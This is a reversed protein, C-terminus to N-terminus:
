ARLAALREVAVAVRADTATLALRVHRAGAPGYFSGPAALVGVRALAAVTDWDVEDRTCWLYLGAQSGEVRLGAQEVAARLLSRRARYREKQEAVHADDAVVAAMAAQVPRPVIMGAHKRVEVLRAVVSPDGALFGARYGALNSQKSLSYCALLGTRDGDCVRDDLLSVPESEWGLTLYCEDSVLLTGTERAWAVAARLAAVDAVTGHPNAPSNLWALGARPQDLLSEVAVPRAGALHAGAAYTPYALHPHLVTDGPGVGLLTPLWGILEKSGITPLVGDPDVGSAGRRAWWASVAERLPPTGHVLPYGPADAAAALAARALEPTPDVPTGLSLDVPDPGADVGRRALADHLSAAGALLHLDAM